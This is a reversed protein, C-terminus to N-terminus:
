HTWFVLYRALDVYGLNPGYSILVFCIFTYSLHYSARVGGKLGSKTYGCLFNLGQYSLSLDGRVLFNNTWIVLTLLFFEHSLVEGLFHFYIFIHFHIDFMVM